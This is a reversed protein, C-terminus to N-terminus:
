CPPREERLVGLKRPHRSLCRYGGATILFNDELRMGRQGPIYLGPELTMVMGAQLREDSGPIFRPEESATLGVAHGAHHPFYQGVGAGDLVDKVAQYVERTPRGPQLAREGAELAEVLLAHQELLAQSPEGVVYTRTCDGWYAGIRPYVDVILLDGPQLARTTPPGGIEETRPGSVFDGDLVAPGASQEAVVRLAALYVDLETAGPHITQEIAAFVGDCTAVAQEIAAVEAPSKVARLRRLAPGVDEEAAMALADRVTGALDASLSAPELGVRGPRRGLRRLAADLAERAAVEPEVTRQISYDEYPSVDLDGDGVPAASAPAMLLATEGTLLLAAPLHTPGLYGSLYTLHIPDSIVCLELGRGAMFARLQKRAQATVPELNM